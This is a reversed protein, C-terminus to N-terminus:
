PKRGEIRRAYLRLVEGPVSSFVRRGHAGLPIIEAVQGEHTVVAACPFFAGGYFLTFVFAQTQRAVSSAPTNRNAERLEELTFWFGARSAGSPISGAPLPEGLKRADGSQELSRNVAEILARSRVPQTFFWALSAILILGLIWASFLLLEKSSPSVKGVQMSSM